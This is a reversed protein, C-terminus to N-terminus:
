QKINQVGERTPIVKKISGDDNYYLRDVCISRRFPNPSNWDLSAEVEPHGEFYLDSNHYFLYWNGKFEVISHHNTGSNVEDLIEGMYKFPGYPNDGICYLIKGRGSYSLYYKGRYKHVWIAEFFDDVGKLVKVKHAPTLMDVNLRVMNLDNQGFYLYPSGDDDIFICPDILDRNNVVGPTLRDILAKGLPDTFPGTPSDGIAVGIYDSEVPYFFYYKGNYFECDPAWAEKSAWDLDDLSLAMGHDTWNVMDNTSFVHWDEMSFWTATDEDHSPYVYLTDDFVRASPDATYMHRIFPNQASCVNLLLFAPVILCSAKKM